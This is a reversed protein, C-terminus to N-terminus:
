VKSVHEKASAFVTTLHHRNHHHENENISNKECKRKRIFVNVIAAGIAVGATILIIKKM